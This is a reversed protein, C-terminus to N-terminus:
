FDNNLFLVFYNGEKYDFVKDLGLTLVESMSVFVVILMIISILTEILQEFSQNYDPTLIVEEV